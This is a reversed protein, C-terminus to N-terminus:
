RGPLRELALGVEKPVARKALSNLWLQSDGAKLLVGSLQRFQKLFETASKYGRQVFYDEAKREALGRLMSGAAALDSGAAAGDSVVLLNIASPQMQRAKDTLIEVLKHIREQGVVRAHIRRVEVNFRTNVRYNV